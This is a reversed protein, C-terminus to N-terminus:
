EQRPRNFMATQIAFLVSYPIVDTFENDEMEDLYLNAFYQDMEEGSILLDGKEAMIYRRNTCRRHSTLTSDVDIKRRFLFCHAFVFPM